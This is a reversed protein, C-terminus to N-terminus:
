DTMLALGHLCFIFHSTQGEGMPLHYRGSWIMEGLPFEYGPM